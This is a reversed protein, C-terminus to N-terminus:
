VSRELYISVGDDRIDYYNLTDSKTVVERGFRDCFETININSTEMPILKNSHFTETVVEKFFM